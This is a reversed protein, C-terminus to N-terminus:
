KFKTAIVKGLAKMLMGRLQSDTKVPNTELDVIEQKLVDFDLRLSLDLYDKLVMPDISYGRDMIKTHLETLEKKFGPLLDKLRKEFTLIDQAVKDKTEISMLGKNKKYLKSLRTRIPSESIHFSAVFAEIRAELPDTTTSVVREPRIKDVYTVLRKLSGLAEEFFSTYDKLIDAHEVAFSM